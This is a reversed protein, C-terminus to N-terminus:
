SPEQRDLCERVLQLLKAPGYPKALFNSDELLSLDRGAMGPSYGSTYIVALGPVEALLREGLQRGTLGGPMVMDTLLLDIDPKQRIWHELAEPGSGASLVNYGHSKLVEVVFDRVEPEDEAVLLTENGGRLPQPLTRAPSPEVKTDCAPLFIRFTTGQGVQSQVNVWGQHQKAIGYVTALGLGTGKGVPKTTFFPEFIRPLIESPIGCGTDSVSLCLFSGPYAEPDDQLAQDSVQLREARLTLHGGSPMADRANIALNMLMQEIMSADANIIPLDDLAHIKVTIHEGLLRPFMESVSSLVEPMSIPRVQIFQKRSFTLLQRVLKSARQAAASITELQKRDTSDAPKRALLLSTHGQVVTLINNFDHAVGAALQGVAEMKQSQRLQNELKTQETIDQSITLLFPEGDLEFLEVSVLIDRISGSKSQLRCTMNRVSMEEHLRKILAQASSPDSWLHLEEPTRGILEARSLGTLEQFGENVDVYKNERLSQIALPIPSARFAKSFREESMRLAKEALMREVIENKLKENAAQLESTRQTALQDLDNLRCNVAHSLTWKQTLAHALQLVEINDFPKKLIVLSDSKGIQRVMSEWSYDSYATCIVIQLDPHNKWIRTITEVGDWGPPMRVDVFAMAYPRGSNVAEQVKLLGEEGQYASVIEFETPKSEPAPEDFLMAKTTALAPNTGDQGSLINRIDEHISPNDDIVLIRNNRKEIDKKM